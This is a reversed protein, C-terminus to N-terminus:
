RQGRAVRVAGEGQDVGLLAAQGPNRRGRSLEPQGVQGRHVTTELVKTASRLALPEVHRCGSRESRERDDGLEPQGEHPHAPQQDHGSSPRLLCLQAFGSM